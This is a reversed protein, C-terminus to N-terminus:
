SDVARVALKWTSPIPLTLNLVEESLDPHQGAIDTWTAIERKQEDFGPVVVESVLSFRANPPLYSAKWYGAAVNFQLLHGMEPDPGLVVREVIGEPSITLYETPDGIHFFHLIDSQNRHLRGRAQDRTLMYLISDASASRIGRTSEVVQPSIYTQRFYGGEAYHPELDLLRVLTQAAGDSDM